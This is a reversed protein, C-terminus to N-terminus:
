REQLEALILEAVVMAEEPYPHWPTARGRPARVGAIWPEDACIDHGETAAAVDIFTLDREAAAAELARSLGETIRRAWEYDGPALPLLDCTGERPVIEPYGVVIVRADPARAQIDELASILNDEVERLRPGAGAAGAIADADACPSGAPAGLTACRVL